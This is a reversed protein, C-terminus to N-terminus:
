KAEAPGLVEFQVFQSVTKHKGGALNDTIVIQLLYDGPLMQDGLRFSGTRTLSDTGAPRPPSLPTQSGKYVPLGDRFINIQVSLDARHDPRLKANYIDYGFWVMAGARFQRLSTDILPDTNKRLESTLAPDAVAKAWQEGPISEFVIGSLTLRNKKLDPVDIFQNASGVKEASSDRLAVRLQYSGAKKIPFTFHYVFGEKLVRQYAEPKLNVSYSKALEDVPIGNDGFSVAVVDFDAKHTGDPQAAFKLDGADVHLYSRVYMSDKEGGVFLANLRLSIDNKGFPSTLASILSQTASQRPRKIQDESYGFFGSRYRVRLDPRNVKIELRNYRRTLPNFTEDDPEYAILYYSQDDLVRRIGKRLDNNNLIGFGGTQRALYTLGDQTDFLNNRRDALANEVQESFLNGPDDEATFGPDILGKADLTYVVVSARNALDTLRRLSDLIRSAQPKGQGDRVFLRFGDSLLMVSKRGPLDSMGRIIYNIAGLTGGAFVSERFDSNEREFNRDAEIQNSLDRVNGTANRTGDMQQVLSPAIPNFIGVNASGVSGFRVKDIARLLQRKDNTFQQLAGIGSGTRIIAVLDGEQMQENVFKKLAEKVWFTSAFSLTLDDVVLAVTRRIQEPRLAAPPMVATINPKDKNTNAAKTQLSANSVFSFNSITQKKGNEFIEFDEPKLDSVINGKKDTVTVDMQILNTTIKVVEDVPTRSPEQAHASFGFFLLSLLPPVFKRM